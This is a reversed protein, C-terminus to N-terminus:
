VCTFCVLYKGKRYWLDQWHLLWSLGWHLEVTEVIKLVTFSCYLFLVSSIITWTVKEFFTKIYCISICFLTVKIANWNREKCHKLCCLLDLRSLSVILLTSLFSFPWFWSPSWVCLLMLPSRVFYLALQSFHTYIFKLKYVGVIIQQQYTLDHECVYNLHM